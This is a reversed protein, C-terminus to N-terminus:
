SAQSLVESEAAARPLLVFFMTGGQPNDEIWITGAHAEVVARSIALGLGLSEGHGKRGHQTQHFTHFVTEKHADDIGPGSDAIGVLAFGTVCAKHPMRTRASDPMRPYERVSRLHVAISGGKESFRIANELLNSFLQVMRNPDCNVLLPERQIDMLMRLSKERAQSSLEMVVSHILDALDCSQMEYEVIGAELRSLDLINGIMQALRKGSQMNLELLRRQKDTLPGPIRELMLHTTEQMSALPAKLEHSVHSIFNKKIEDVEILRMAMRKNERLLRTLRSILYAVIAIAAFLSVRLM